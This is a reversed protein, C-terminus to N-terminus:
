HWKASDPAICWMLVPEEGDSHVVHCHVLYGQDIFKRRIICDESSFDGPSLLRDPIPGCHNLLVLLGMFSLERKNWMFDYWRM